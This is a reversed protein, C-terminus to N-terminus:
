GPNGAHKEVKVGTFFIRKMIGLVLFIDRSCRANSQRLAGRVADKMM